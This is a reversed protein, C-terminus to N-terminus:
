PRTAFAAPGRLVIERPESWEAAVADIIDRGFHTKVYEAAFASKAELVLRTGDDRAVLPAIWAEFQTPFLDALQRRVSDWGTATGTHMMTTRVADLRIVREGGPTLRNMRECFDSGVLHWFPETLECVRHLNLRYAAVRGRVGTRRCILLGTDLWRKVERKVTRDGVGWLSAMERQGMSLEDLRWNYRATILTTLRAMSLQDRTSGNLGTVALATLIDYKVAGSGAGNVRRNEM